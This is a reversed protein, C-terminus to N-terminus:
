LNNAIYGLENNIAKAIDDATAKTADGEITINIDGVQIAKSQVTDNLKDKYPTGYQKLQLQEYIEPYQKLIDMASSLNNVLDNKISDGMIGLAEGSTEAFEILTDQLNTIEGDISTFTGSGLAEQVMESIKNPSWLKELQSIKDKSDEEVKEIENDYMEEIKEDLRNQQLEQLAKEEEALEEYAEQLKSRSALSNDSELIAIKSQLKSIKALQENYEDNYDADKRYNQYAEKQEELSKVVTDKEEEIKNKRDELQKEYIETIKDEIDKTIQLKENNIDSIQNKLEYWQRIADPLDNVQLDIYEEMLDKIKELDDSNQYADLIDDQNTINNFEDFEFGYSGLSEKYVNIMENYKDITKQINTRQQEIAEIQKNYLLIKDHGNVNEMKVSLLDITNGLIEFKNNLDDVDNKFTYLKNELILKEIEDENNKISNLIDNWEDEIKPLETYQLNIYEDTLKNVRDLKEKYKDMKDKAKETAKSLSKKKSESKGSYNSEAKEAKEYAKELKDYQKQMSILKEDYGTLNGQSNITFKYDNKLIDRVALKQQILADYYKRQLRAQEEYIENQKELYEIKETGVAREMKSDLLSLQNACRSIRNELEQFLEISNELSYIIRDADITIKTDKSISSGISGFPKLASASVDEGDSLASVSDDGVVSSASFSTTPTISPSINVTQEMPTDSINNFDEISDSRVKVTAKEILSNLARRARELGNLIITITKTQPKSAVNIDDLNDQVNSANPASVKVIKFKNVARKDVGILNKKTDDSGPSTVTVKKNKNDSKKDVEDLNKKTKEAGSTEVDVKKTSKKSAEKDIGLLKNKTDEDDIFTEVIKDRITLADITDLETLANAVNTVVEVQKEDDLEDIARRIGQLDGIAIAKNIKIKVQKEDDTTLLDDITNNVTEITDEGVVNVKFKQTIEPHKLLYEIVDEYTELKNFDEGIECAIKVNKKEFPLNKLTQNVLNLKDDDLVETTFLTKIKENENVQKFRTIRKQLEKLNTEVNTDDLSIKVGKKGLKNAENIQKVVDAELKTGDQLSIGVKLAEDEETLEGNLMKAILPSSDGEIKGNQKIVLGLRTIVSAELDTIKGDGDMAGSIISQMQPPLNKFENGENVEYLLDIKAETTLTDSTMDNLFYQLDDFQEKLRRGLAQTQSDGLEVDMLTLDFGGLFNSWAMTEEDLLGGLQQTFGLIWQSADIGTIKEFEEAVGQLSKQYQTIDGTKQFIDNATEIEQNWKEVDTFHDESYEAIKDFGELIKNRQSLNEAVSENSWDYLNILETMIGKEHEGLTAYNKYNDNNLLENLADTQQEAEYKLYETNKELNEKNISDIKKQIKQKADIYKKSGEELSRTRDGWLATLNSWSNNSNDKIIDQINEKRNTRYDKVLQGADQASSKQQRRILEDERQIARDLKEILSDVSGGLALIPDQNEDYGTVLEPFMEAIQNKYQSLEEMEDTTKNTKQSLEEYAKAISQISKRNTRLENITEKSTELAEQTKKHSNEVRHAYDDWAKVALSIGGVVLTMLGANLLSTGITLASSKLTSVAMNKATSLFGKNVKSTTVTMKDMYDTYTQMSKSAVRLNGKVKGGFAKDLNRSMKTTNSIITGNYASVQKGIDKINTGTDKAIVKIKNSENKFNSVIGSGLISVKNDTAKAKLVMFLSSLTGIVAPTAMGIDDLVSLFDNLVEVGNAFGSVIGKSMDTTITTTVLQKFQDKLSVIRGELSDVFRANEKEGSGVTFGDNYEQQYQLVTEWNGLMAQIVNAHYKNGIAETVAKQEVETLDDWKGALENLIDFGDKVTGEQMDVANIGVDKLAKATKNLMIEEEKASYTIGNLNVAITKLANGVKSSDQVIENAGIIMGISESLSNGNEKLVSISRSLAKGVDGSTIAFNNGAYNAQDIYDNLLSYADSAGKVANTMPKMSKEVGGYASTVTKIYKDADEETLDAVNAYLNVERAYQLAQDIDKIGLQLASATSNIIDVSSRAVDQGIEYAKDRLDALQEATGTFSAPAVKELDRFATDLEAITEKISYIGHTIQMGIINGLSYTSLTSYLNTSFRKTNSAITNLSKTMTKTTSNTTKCSRNLNDIRTNLRRLEAEAQKTSLNGIENLQNKIGELRTTNRGLSIYKNELQNLKNIAKQVSTDINFAKINQNTTTKLDNFEKEYLNLLEIIQKLNEQGQKTDIDIKSTDITKIKNIINDFATANNFNSSKKFKEISEILTAMRTQVTTIETSMKESFQINDDLSDIKAKLNTVGEILKAIDEYAKGGIGSGLLINGINMDKKLDKYLLSLNKLEDTQGKTLNKMSLMSNIKKGMTDAESEIKKFVNIYTRAMDESMDPSVKLGKMSNAVTEIKSNVISLMQSLEKYAQTNIPTKALQAETKEKEGVLRNYEKLADNATKIGTATKSMSSIANNIRKLKSEAEELPVNALQVLNDRLKEASSTDKGVMKLSSILANVNEMSSKLKTGFDFAKKTNEADTNLQKIKNDVIEITSNLADLEAKASESNIDIKANKLKTNFINVVDNLGSTNVFGKNKLADLKSGLTEIKKLADNIKSNFNANIDIEKASVKVKDLVSLLNAMKEYSNQSNIIDTLKTNKINNLETKLQKLQDIQSTALNKNKFMNDIVQSTKTVQNQLTQFNDALKRTLDPEIKKNKLTDMEKSLLSIQQLNKKLEENLVAYSQSNTTKSMQKELSARENLLTNFKSIASTAKPVQSSLQNIETKISNLQKRAEAFTLKNLGNLKSELANIKETSQGTKIFDERLKSLNNLTGSINIKLSDSKTKLDMSSKLKKYESDLETTKAKLNNIKKVADEDKINIQVNKLKKVKELLSDIANTNGYGKTYLNRIKNELTDVKQVAGQINKSLADSVKIKSFRNDFEQVKTILKSMEAYPKDAKLINDLNATSKLSEVQKELTKLQALQTGSYNKTKLANEIAVGLNNAQKIVSEFSNALSKTIDTKISKKNLNDIQSGVKKIKNGVSTLEKSLAKYSQSNHTTKSMQKELSKKETILKKYESILRKANDTEKRFADANGKYGNKGKTLEKMQSKLNKIDNVLTTTDVSIKIKDANNELQKILRKLDSDADGKQVDTFIKIKIDEAM